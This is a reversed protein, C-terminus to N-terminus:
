SAYGGTSRFFSDFSPFTALSLLFIQSINVVCTGREVHVFTDYDYDWIRGSALELSFPHGSQEFHHQAHQCTYRGCGTHACVMCVWINDRLDCTLCRRLKTVDTAVSSSSDLSGVAPNKEGGRKDEDTEISHTGGYIRCVLCRAGNGGFKTHVPIDNSGPIHTVSSKMRRLCVTCSPLRRTKSKILTKSTSSSSLSSSSSHGLLACKEKLVENGQEGQSDKLFVSSYEVREIAIPITLCPPNSRYSPFHLNNYLSCFTHYSSENHFSILAMKCKAEVSSVYISQDETVLEYSECEPKFPEIFTEFEDLMMGSPVGLIICSFNSPAKKEENFGLLILESAFEDSNVGKQLLRISHM